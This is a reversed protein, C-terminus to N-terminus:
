LIVESENQECIPIYGERKLLEYLFLRGKQTWYTHVASKNEEYIYTKSKTYGCDAYQQYLLWTGCKMKYQIKLDYLIYNLRVASMGYDKAIVTIPIANESALIENLYTCKDKLLANEQELRNTKKQENKLMTLINIIYEPNYILKEITEPTAYMGYKRITPLIESTVWHKFTKAQSKTSSLILSYLGSENILWGGRQGLEIGFRYQTESDLMLRDEEDVHRIIDRNGNSYELILTIDRGVFWPEGDIVVTRVKGFREHEFVRLEKMKLEKTKFRVTKAIETM